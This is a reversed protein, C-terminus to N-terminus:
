SFHGVAITDRVASGDQNAQRAPQNFRDPLQRLPPVREKRITATNHLVVCAAIDCARQPSVRLGNLCAFRAKLIGFAMEIKVSTKCLSTNFRTQSGPEPNLYPTMMFPRCAYGNDGLLLGNYQGQECQQNLTSERFMRSDHASGPWQAEINTFLCDPDCIMQVTVSHFGKRNVSNAEQQISQM